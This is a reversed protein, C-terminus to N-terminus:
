RLQSNNLDDQTNLNNFFPKWVLPLNYSALDLTELIHKMSYKELLGQELQAKVKALGKASYIACLPEHEGENNFVHAEKGPQKNYNNCLQEIVKAHMYPLDCALVFLDKDRHTKHVSLLGLLPGKVKLESDDEVLNFDPFRSQYSNHQQSNVSLVVPMNLQVFLGISREVWTQNNTKILAKDTGMRSSQGGCLIVATLPKKNTM